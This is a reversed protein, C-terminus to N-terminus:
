AKASSSEAMIAAGSERPTLQDNASAATEPAPASQSVAEAIFEEATAKREVMTGIYHRIWDMTEDIKDAQLLLLEGPEVMNLAMEAAKTAGIVEIIEKVRSESEVGKRFLGMIEGQARGRLYHDEYLIVRDFASGLLEGQRIMDCDRRDGATSYVAMRRKHPFKEVVELVATLSHVNHGYDVIVTAGDIDLVNFRGPVKSMDASITAASRRIADLPIGLCWAAATSALTNEIHFSIKGGLTLPVADVSMLTEEHSGEAFIIQGDRVFVARGGVGRHRVIVPNEGDLAFFLVNGPSLPAMKVVLPDAANLVAYGKPSVVDVICRKVKFLDEPTNVESIGLHDGDGINTVVAVDCYDFALGERLIGGRATEFVAAEVSPNMLVSQASKPGSCDGNDIRREGVYIGDTCTMGVSKYIGKLVHAIFRTTTTKGNVGTVSVLPIRGNDNEPYMMDIIAEGVPRSIGASPQLHMRLGPAANIEVIIGGQEELPRSIDQAIIDIGAIDLGIIKAADIARAAVEPHVYETVDIATGGTSLNANRRILVMTGGAPVSEPTYGQDALVGMSITDLKIKSLVTGHHEGRRPDTNVIDALQAISHQGDGVVHAPERRAAAVVKGNVVLVRYDHGQAFKEVLVQKSEERAAQYAALVQERTTLNAAVGRGQNGDQPKVVVPLGIESAAEWADEASSVPRGEPAPVGVSRLLVRTMQKDQAIAEAVASTRDTEAARIRRQKCGYGLQVLSESNLRRVPIGRAKAVDVIANTSPGLCYQQALDRLRNIEGQVDFPRDYAAALFLETAVKLSERALNEDIYEFVIRYVGDESTERAKGFGVPTGALTQLELTIHEIIHAPWTGMRLREFFGGRVGLSCRHEIMTPMWSMLRENFGPLTNSPSDKLEGLDIWAEIVPYNAWINPGRLALVKRYEM